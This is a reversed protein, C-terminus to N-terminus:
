EGVTPNQWGGPPLKKTHKAARVLASMCPRQLSTFPCLRTSPPRSRQDLGLTKM